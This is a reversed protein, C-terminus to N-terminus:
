GVKLIKQTIKDFIEKDKSVFLFNKDMKKYLDECMYWGSAIDYERIKGEFLVFDVDNAYALSLALAGPSRFKMKLNQLINLFLESSYAKEFLGISSNKNIRVDRFGKVHLSGKKFGKDNKIFIDGNALNCIFANIVKNDEKLAISTGFYPLKSIFNDSGDIPDIVIKRNSKKGYVGIEESFIQGYSKLHKIFIKEAQIDVFHSMDGGEGIGVDECLKEHPTANIFDYVQKNAELCSSLFEDIM